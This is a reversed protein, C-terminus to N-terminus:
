LIELLEVEFILLSYPKISSQQPPYAGYALEQPIFFKFKAGKNMLALGETWGPIVENLGFETPNGRDYSSDFVDGTLTKGLYHVRVRSNAKPREGKGKRLIQYQLGSATQIVGRKKKNRKLFDVGEKRAELEIAQARSQLTENLSAFLINVSNTDRSFVNKRVLGDKLGQIASKFNILDLSNLEYFMNYFETRNLRGVCRACDNSFATDKRINPSKVFSQVKMLCDDTSYTGLQEEFGLVIHEKSLLSFVSDTIFPKSSEHVILYSISDRYSELVYDSSVYDIDEDSRNSSSTKSNKKSKTDSDESAACGAMILGLSLCFILKM